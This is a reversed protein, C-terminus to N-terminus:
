QNLFDLWGGVKVRDFKKVQSENIGLKALVDAKKAGTKQIIMSLENSRISKIGLKHVDALTYIKDLKSAFLIDERTLNNGGLIQAKIQPAGSQLLNTYPNINRVESGLYRQLPLKNLVQEGIALQNAEDQRRLSESQRQAILEEDASGIDSLEAKTRLLKDKTLQEEPTLGVDSAEPSFSKTLGTFSAIKGMLSKDETGKFLDANQKLRQEMQKRASIDRWVAVFHTIDGSPGQVPTITHEM